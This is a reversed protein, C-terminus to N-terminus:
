QESAASKPLVLERGGPQFHPMAGTYEIAAKARAPAGEGRIGAAIEEFLRRALDAELAERVDSWKKEGPKIETVQILHVGFPSVIPESVQGPKLGFATRSFSEEMVGHRPFYGVDGGAARSPAQSHKAAAEAFSMQGSVIAQRTQRAQQRAAELNKAKAGAAPAVKWLIHSARVQTGDFQPRHQEFHRALADDTMRRKLYRQWSLRWALDRRLAAENWGQEALHEHFDLRLKEAQAKQRAVAADIEAAPVALKQEALWQTVLLRDILQELAQAEVLPRDAAEVERRGLSERVIRQVEGVYLREGNVVAAVTEAPSSAVQASLDSAALILVALLRQDARM